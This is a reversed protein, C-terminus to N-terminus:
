PAALKRAAVENKLETFEQGVQSTTDIAMRDETFTIAHDALDVKDNKLCMTIYPYVIKGYLTLGGEQGFDRITREYVLRAGDWDQAKLKENMAEAGAGIGLDFGESRNQIIIDKLLGDADPDNAAKLALYLRKQGEVKMEPYSGFQSIWDQYFAKIKDLDGSKEVLAAQLRWTGSWEPMISRADDLIHAYSADNEHLHAWALATLAPQYNPNKAGNKFLNELVSDDIPRWTQPDVAFGKPFDQEEYRGCDLEWKGSSSLYGFWAHAGDM